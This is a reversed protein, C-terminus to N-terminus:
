ARMRAPVRVPRATIQGWPTYSSIEPLIAWPRTMYGSGFGAYGGGFTGEELGLVGSYFERTAELDSSEYYSIIREVAMGDTDCGLRGVGCSPM